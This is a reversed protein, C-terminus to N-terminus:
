KILSLDRPEFRVQSGCGVIFNLEPTGITYNDSNEEVNTEDCFINLTLLKEFQIVLDGTIPNASSAKVKQNVMMQLGSYMAERNSKSSCVISINDMLRWSCEVFLNYEGRYSRQVDSLHRNTIPKKRQIMKGFDVGFISGTGRGAVVGWCRLGLLEKTVQTLEIVM